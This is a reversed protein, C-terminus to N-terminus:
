ISGNETRSHGDQHALTNVSLPLFAETLDLYSVLSLPHHRNNKPFNCEPDSQPVKYSGARYMLFAKESATRNIFSLQLM